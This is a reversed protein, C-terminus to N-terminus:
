NVQVTDSKFLAKNNYFKLIYQGKVPTFISVTTDKYYVAQACIVDGKKANTYTGNANIEFTRNATEKIEFNLFRYCLDPAACKVNSVIHQGQVQNSPTNTSIISIDVIVTDPEYTTKKCSSLVIFFIFFFFIQRM